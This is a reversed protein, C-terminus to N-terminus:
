CCRFGLFQFYLAYGFAVAGAYAWVVLRPTAPEALGRTTALALGPVAPLLGYLLFPQPVLLAALLLPRYAVALWLPVLLAAHDRRERVLEAGCGLAPPAPGILFPNLAGRFLM